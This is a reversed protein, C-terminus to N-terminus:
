QRRRRRPHALPASCADLLTRADILDHIEPEHDISEYAPSLVEYAQALRGQAVRLRALDTAARLELLRAQRARATRLAEVFCAEAAAPESHQQAQGKLRHLEPEWLREGTKMMAHHGDDIATLASGTEGARLHCEALLVFNYPLWAITGVERLQEIGRRCL